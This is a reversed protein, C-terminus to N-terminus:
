IWIIHSRHNATLFYRNSHQINEAWSLKEVKFILRDMCNKPQTFHCTYFKLEHPAWIEVEPFHFLFFHLLHHWQFSIAEFEYYIWYQEDFSHLIARYTRSISYNMKCRHLIVANDIPTCHRTKTRIWASFRSNIHLSDLLCILISLFLALASPSSSAM